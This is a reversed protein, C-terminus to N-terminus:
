VPFVEFCESTQAQNFSNLAQGKTNNGKELQVENIQQEM